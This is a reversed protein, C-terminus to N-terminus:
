RLRHAQLLRQVRQRVSQLRDETQHHAPESIGYGRHFSDRSFHVYPVAGTRPGNNSGFTGAMEGPPDQAPVPAHLEARDAVFVFQEIM